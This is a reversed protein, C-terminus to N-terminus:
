MLQILGKSLCAEISYKTEKGAKAGKEFEIGFYKGDCSKVVGYGESIHHIRKGIYEKYVDTGAHVEEAEFDDEIATKEPIDSDSPRVAPEKYEDAADKLAM